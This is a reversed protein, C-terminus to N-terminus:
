FRVGIKIETTTLESFNMEAGLNIIGAQFDLGAVVRGDFVHENELAVEDTTEKSFTYFGALGVYPTFKLLDKSVFIDVGTNSLNFDSIGLAQMHSMRASVAFGNELNNVIAYKLDAGVFGYHGGFPGSHTFYLGVDMKDTIGMRAQLAPLMIADGIWHTSDPHEFTNNWIASEQDIPTVSTNLALEFNFKGLPKASTMPNFYLIQGLQKTFHHWEGQTLDSSLGFECTTLSPNVNIVVNPDEGEEHKKGEHANAGISLAILLLVSMSKMQINNMKQAKM